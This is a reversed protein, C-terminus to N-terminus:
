RAALPRVTREMEALFKDPMSWVAFHGGGELRVIEKQPATIGDLYKQALIFPTTHDETGQIIVVPVGFEPGLKTLDTKLMEDYLTWPPVSAFGKFRNMTDGISYNPPPSLLSRQLEAFAATDSASQYRGSCQFFVAVQKPNTFPPAGIATLERVTRVDQAARAAELLRQYEMAVSGPLDSAQGTGVFAAFLEPRQKVMKVGLISGFSHGLLVVKEKGLKARVYEAVEIGDQAMRDISMTSAIGPGTSGLTKGAGRQDWLVVTFSKEWKRFLRTVPIWTGGPGGHVCLLVPNSRDEGRIQVWQKIGGIDVFGAEDIGTPTRIALADANRHQQYSRVSFFLAVVCVVLVVGAIFVFKAIKLLLRM